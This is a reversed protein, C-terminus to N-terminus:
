FGAKRFDEWIAEWQCKNKTYSQASAGIQSRLDVDQLLGDVAAAIEQYDNAVLFDQGRVAAIGEAGVDNTVVPMGMAMAELIKTKIGTGYALAALFVETRQVMPRLDPVKGLIELKECDALEQRLEDPCKGIIYCKRVNHCLPLIKRAILRLSDANAATGMNGIFSITGPEKEVPLQESFFPYDVGLSVTVAKDTHYTENFDKTELDSVFIVKDYLDAFYREAWKMRPIEFRLVAKKLCKATLLKQLFKPLKQNYQGAVTTKTDIVREQRAYRKSLTDDIDLIKLGAYQHCAYIYPALRVMDVFIADYHRQILVEAIKKANTESYYLSCQLPWAEKGWFSRRLMNTLKTSRSIPIGPIIDRIFDPKQNKEKETVEDFIYTDIEYGLKHHLGRCYHYMESAHGDYPPWFVRTCLYLISKSMINM